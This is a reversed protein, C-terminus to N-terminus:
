WELLEVVNQQLRQQYADQEGAQLGQWRAAAWLEIREANGIFIVDKEIGAAERLEAPIVFRHHPDLDVPSVSSFFLRRFDAKQAAGRSQKMVEVVQDLGSRTYLYLCRPDVQVLYLGKGSAPEAIAERFKAPLTVQHQANLKHPYRGYFM